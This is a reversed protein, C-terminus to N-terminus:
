CPNGYNRDAPLSLQTSMKMCEDQHYNINLYSRMTPLKNQYCLIMEARRTKQKGDKM